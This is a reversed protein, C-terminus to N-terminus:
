SAVISMSSRATTRRHDLGACGRGLRHLGIHTSTPEGQRRELRRYRPARQTGCATHKDSATDICAM